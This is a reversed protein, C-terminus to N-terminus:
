IVGKRANLQKNKNSDANRKKSQSVFTKYELSNSLSYHSLDVDLWDSFEDLRFYPNFKHFLYSDIQLPNIGFSKTSLADLQKKFWEKFQLVAEPYCNVLQRYADESQAAVQSQYDYFNALSLLSKTNYYDEIRKVYWELSVGLVDCLDRVRRACYLDRQEQETHMDFMVKEFDKSTQGYRNPYYYRAVRDHHSLTNFERCKPFLRGELSRWFPVNKVTTRVYMTIDSTGRFVIEKVQPDTDKPVGIAPRRSYVAFPKALTHDYIKPYVSLSNVYKAVYSAAAYRPVSAGVFGNKWTQCLVKYCNAHFEKSDYFLLGHYHPRYNETKDCGYESVIFYRLKAHNYYKDLHFRLRKLFTQVHRKDVVRFECDSKLARRLVDLSAMDNRVDAPMESLRAYEYLSGDENYWEELFHGDRDYERVYEYKAFIVDRDETLELRYKPVYEPAYTLTFFMSYPWQMSEYQLRNVFDSQRANLCAECKRCPVHMYEGIYKNYVRVPHLCNVINM